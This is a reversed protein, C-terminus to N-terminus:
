TRLNILVLGEKIWLYLIPELALAVIENSIDYIKEVAKVVNQTEPIESRQRQPIRFHWQTTCQV